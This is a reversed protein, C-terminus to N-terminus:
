YQGKDTYHGTHSAQSVHTPAQTPDMSSPTNHFTAQGSVSSGPLSPTGQVAPVDSAQPTGQVMPVSGSPSQGGSMPMGPLPLVTNEKTPQRKGCSRCFIADDPNSTGCYICFM